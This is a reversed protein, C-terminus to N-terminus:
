YLHKLVDGCKNKHYEFKKTKKLCSMIFKIVLMFSLHALIHSGNWKSYQKEVISLFMNVHNQLM